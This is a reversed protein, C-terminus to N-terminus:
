AVEMTSMGGSKTVLWSKDFMGKFEVDHAVVFVRQTKAKETLLQMYQKRGDADMYMDQEDYVVINMPDSGIYYDLMLDSLAMDVALSIRRKEGGSFLRYPIKEGGIVVRVEFKERKEGAKTESQTDFELAVSGGTLVNAYRNAVASLRSCIIDFVYSKIGGDGFGDIWFRNYKLDDRIEEITSNCEIVRAEMEAKEEKAKVIMAHFPNEEKDLLDVKSEIKAIESELRAIDRLKSDNESIMVDLKSKKGALDSLTSELDGAIAMITHYQELESALDIDMQDLKMKSTPVDVSQLCTPCVEELASVRAIDSKLVAVVRDIESLAKKRDRWQRDVDGIHENLDNQVKLFKEKPKVSESLDSVEKEIRVKGDLYSARAEGQAGQWDSERKSLDSIDVRGIRDILTEKEAIYSAEDRELKSVCKRSKELPEDLELRMIKSLIEKQQKNTANTFNFTEEQGFIVTCRFLSFDIGFLDILKDQTLSDTGATLDESGRMLKISNKHDRHKRARRVTYRDGKFSLEVEVLCNKGALRNVVEDSKADRITVGFLAWSIADWIVSKGSGNSGGEDENKGEILVLGPTGFDTFEQDGYSMFNQVKLCEFIM